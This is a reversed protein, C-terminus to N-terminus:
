NTGRSSECPTPMWKSGDSERKFHTSTIFQTSLYKPDDVLTIVTLWDSGADTLRDFYETVVTRDSYPVGNKRLYGERLNTTVVKLTGVRGGATQLSVGLGGPQPIREWEAASSGQWTRTAPPKETAGFRLLRTQQGADTEIKLTTDNEWTIRLRGPVRMVSAAGYPKCGDSAVKSPDWADAVKRGTPSLPVSSYDGKKPLVMRWRWDETVLSVWNGTIDIPAAAKPTPPVRPAAPPAQQAALAVSCVAALVLALAYAPDQQKSGAPWAPRCLLVRGVALRTSVRVLLQTM